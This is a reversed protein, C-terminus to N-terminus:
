RGVCVGHLSWLVTDREAASGYFDGMVSTTHVFAGSVSLWDEPLQREARQVVLAAEELEVQHRAEWM